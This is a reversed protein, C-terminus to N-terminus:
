IKIPEWYIGVITGRITRAALCMESNVTWEHIYWFDKIPRFKRMEWVMNNYMYTLYVSDKTEKLSGDEATQDNPGKYSDNWEQMHPNLHQAFAHINALITSEVKKQTSSFLPKKGEWLFVPKYYTEM